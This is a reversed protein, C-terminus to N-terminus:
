VEKADSDVISDDDSNSEGENSDSKKNKGFAMLVAVAIIGAGIGIKALNKKLNKKKQIQNVETSEETSNVSEENKIEQEKSM